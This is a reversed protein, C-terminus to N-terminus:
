FVEDFNVGNRPAYRPLLPNEQRVALLRKGARADSMCKKCISVRRHADAERVPRIDERMYQHMQVLSRM